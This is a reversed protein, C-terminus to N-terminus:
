RATNKRGRKKKKPPSTTRKLGAFPLQIKEVIQMFATMIEQFDFADNLRERTQEDLKLADYLFDLVDPVAQMADATMSLAAAVDDESIVGGSIDINHNRIIALGAGLLATGTRKNPEKFPFEEGGIVITIPPNAKANKPVLELKEETTETM